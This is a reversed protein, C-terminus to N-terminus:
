AILEESREWLTRALDLDGALPNLRAGTKRKVYFEGSIWDKGPEQEALWVLQDAGNEPTTLLVARSVPNTALFKMLPSTTEAGFNTRINGPYFCAASLGRHHHRRHLEKTFLVNELKAAVYARIPNFNRTLNLDDMDLRRADGGHLTTTQIVSAHSSVLTDMLLMTLLFPALHNIQFTKEFGDVTRTPDGFVGGANNALVDILPYAAQLEAALHRVDDLRTFDAVFHDAGLEKAVAQTKAPSRGVVVVRHGDQALKRAATAGIGDSAGTIVVVKRSGM